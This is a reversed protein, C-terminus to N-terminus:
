LYFIYNKSMKRNSTLMPYNQAKLLGFNHVLAFIDEGLYHLVKGSPYELISDILVVTVKMCLIKVAVTM